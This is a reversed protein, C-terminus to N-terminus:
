GVFRIAARDGEPPEGGAGARAFEEYEAVTLPRRAALQEALGISAAMRATGEVFRGTFVEACCGSGYSFLGVEQGELRWGEREALWALCVYLSATYTNGVVRAAGLGPEVLTPFSREAGAAMDAAPRGTGAWEHAVLRHHAKQAMKPFPTHYLFAACRETLDTP